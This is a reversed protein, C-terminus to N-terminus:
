KCTPSVQHIVGFNSIHTQKHEEALETALRLAKAKGSVEDVLRGFALVQIWNTFNKNRRISIM